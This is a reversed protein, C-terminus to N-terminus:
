VCTADVNFICSPTLAFVRSFHLFAWPPLRPRNAIYGSTKWNWGRASRLSLSLSFLPQNDRELRVKNVSSTIPAIIGFFSAEFDTTADLKRGASMSSSRRLFECNKPTITAISFDLIKIKRVKAIQSERAIRSSFFSLPFFSPSPSYNSRSPGILSPIKM